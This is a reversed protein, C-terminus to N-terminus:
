RAARREQARRHKQRKKGKKKVCKGKRKAQGKKCKHPPPEVVNGPDNFSPFAPTLEAPPPVLPQCGEGQCPPPEGAEPFGGEVRADYVDILEDADAPVLRDRTTFFVNAGSSDAALFNSDTGEGGGSLLSVCGEARECSGLGEPEWQYVDEAGENTDAPVLSDQSDFFLRGSDTLYRPQLLYSPGAILRLVSLGLPPAGSSNCSACRLKKAVSDYIFAEPCPAPVRGGAHDSECPGTNEYGTLQAQSLFAAYRGGPSAEATRAAPSDNWDRALNFSGNLNDEALLTAVFSTEGEVWAYLNFKGAQAKAGESNEEEGTLVATDVFYAHSLDDSQGVLGQFGGAGATLDTCEETAMSYLCGDQLLVLSGDASASLYKGSDDVERTETGSIRAHVQGSEDSWFATNGDTSVAHAVITQGGGFSAGAPAEANGPMVNVLALQGASWEYLNFKAAGGDEAAPAVPTEEALSDNAEFFVRSGDASAGAYRAEFAGAGSPFRHPPAQKVFPELSLPDALGQAYLNEYEPPAKPSLTRSPQGIVAQGLGSSLFRYGSQSAGLLLTPTPNATVWGSDTRRSVYQNEALAGATGFPAGEYAVANGDPASQMPFHQFTSGPKCKGEGSCSSIRPDAPLVQGGEKQAPSVLEWAREDPLVPAELPFTHFAAGAGDTECVASPESPKCNSEAVVRFRYATDPALGTLTAAVAQAGTGELGAGGLPAEAAGAFSEGEDQYQAESLYKFAYHAKFGKPDIRARLVASTTGVKAVSEGEIVPPAEVPSAFIYGLASQGPEGKGVGSTPEPGPAGAYLVGAPRGPAFERTPDFAMGWLDDREPAVAITGVEKFEGGECVSLRHVLKPKKYSFFFPEGTKPNVTVATIGSPKYTFSCDPPGPPPAPFVAPAEPAFMEISEGGTGGGVYLNGAEDAVPGTPLNGPGEGALVEGAYAYHEFDGPTEPKFVMLRHYETGLTTNDFVYVEDGGNVIALGGAYSTKHLTSPSVAIAEGASALEGFRTIEKEGDGGDAPFMVVAKTGAVPRPALVYVNGTAQDVDVDFSGREVDVRPPCSPHPDSDGNPLEGPPGCVQYPGGGLTVVWEEVFKLGGNLPVDNGSATAPQSLEVTGSDVALITTGTPIGPGEVTQGKSFSGAITKLGTVTASGESLDGSGTVPEFMAVRIDSPSQTVAYVSGKSVGGAGTYNVAMGSVGGLQVEESFNEEAVPKCPDPATGAFCGVQEFDAAGAPAASALMYLCALALLAVLTCAVRASKPNHDADTV